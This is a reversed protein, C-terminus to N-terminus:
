SRSEPVANPIIRGMKFIGITKGTWLAEAGAPLRAELSDHRLFDSFPAATQSAAMRTVGPHRQTRGGLSEQRIMTVRGSWAARSIWKLLEDGQVAAYKRQSNSHISDGQPVIILLYKLHRIKAVIPGIVSVEVM